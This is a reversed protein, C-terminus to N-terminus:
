GEKWRPHYNAQDEKMAESFSGRGFIVKGKEVRLADANGFGKLVGGRENPNRERYSGGAELVCSRAKISGLVQSGDGLECGDLISAMNMIRCGDGIALRGNESKICTGNEGIENRDGIRLEGGARVIRCASYFVNGDGISIIGGPASDVTVCPFFTNGTGIEAFRSLLLSFPDYITNTEMLDFLQELGLFGGRARVDDLKDFFRVDM